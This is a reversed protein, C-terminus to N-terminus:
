LHLLHPQGFLLTILGLTMQALSLHFPPLEVIELPRLTWTYPDRGGRHSSVTSGGCLILASKAFKAAGVLGGWQRTTQSEQNLHTFQHADRSISLMDNSQHPLYCALILHSSYRYCIAHIWCSELCRRRNLPNGHRNISLEISCCTSMTNCRLRIRRLFAPHNRVQLSILLPTKTPIGIGIGNM